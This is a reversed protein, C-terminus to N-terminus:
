KIPEFWYNFYIYSDNVLYYHKNNFLFIIKYDIVSILNIIDSKMLKIEQQTDISYCVLSDLLLKYNGPKPNLWNKIEKIIIGKIKIQWEVSNILNQDKFVESDLTPNQDLINNIVGWYETEDILFKIYINYNVLTSIIRIITLSKIDQTELLIKSRLAKFQTLYSMSKMISSLNVMASRISDQHRSYADQSLAPNPVSVAPQTSDQNSRQLNFETFELLLNKSKIM